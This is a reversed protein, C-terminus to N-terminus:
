NKMYQFRNRNKALRQRLRKIQREYETIKEKYSECSECPQCTHVENQENQQLSDNAPEDVNELSTFVSPITNLKLQSKDKTRFDVIQFHENCITGGHVFDPDM